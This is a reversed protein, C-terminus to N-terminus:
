RLGEDGQVSGSMLKCEQELKATTHTIPPANKHQGHPISFFHKVFTVNNLTDHM